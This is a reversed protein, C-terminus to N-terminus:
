SDGCCPGRRAGAMADLEAVVDIMEVIRPRPNRALDRRLLGAEELVGLEEIGLGEPDRGAIRERHLRLLPQHDLHGPVGEVVRTDRRLRDQALPDGHDEAVHGLIIRALAGAYKALGGDEAAVVDEGDAAHGVGDERAPDRVQQAHGARAQREVGGAGGGEIGGMEGALAQPAALRLQRDRPARIEEERRLAVDRERAAAHEGHRPRALGEVRRGVAEHAGLARADDHQPRERIRDGRAIRDVRHDAAAADAGVAAVAAVHHRGAALALGLRHAVGIRHRAHRWGVDMIDLGVAGPRHDAIGDLDAGEGVHHAGAARGVTREADGRDLAMEAVGFGGRADGAQDVGAERDAVARKRRLEVELRGFGIIGHASTGIWTWRSLSGQGKGSRGSTPTFEKPM